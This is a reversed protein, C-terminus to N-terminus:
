DHGSPLEDLNASPWTPAIDLYSQPWNYGLPTLTNKISFSWTSHVIVMIVLMHHNDMIYNHKLPIYSPSEIPNLPIYSEYVRQYVFLKSNFIAMSITSKGM